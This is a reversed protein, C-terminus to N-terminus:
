SLIKACMKICIFPASPKHVEPALALAARTFTSTAKTEESGEEEGVRPAKETEGAAAAAV